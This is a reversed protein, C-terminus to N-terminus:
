YSRTFGVDYMINLGTMHDCFHSLLCVAAGIGGTAGTVLMTRAEGAM